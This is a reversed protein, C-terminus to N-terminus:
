RTCIELGELGQTKKKFSSIGAVPTQPPHPATTKSELRPRGERARWHCQREPKPSSM